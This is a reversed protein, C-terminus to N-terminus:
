TKGAKARQYWAAVRRKLADLDCAEWPGRRGNHYVAVESVEMTEANGNVVVVTIGDRSSLRAYLLDQGTSITPRRGGSKWELFLFNCGVEVAADVDGFAIRSPAFCGDFVELRPRKKQNFCGDKECCWRMAGM